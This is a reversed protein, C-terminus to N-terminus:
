HEAVLEVCAGLTVMGIGLWAALVLAQRGSARPLRTRGLMRDGVIVAALSAGLLAAAILVDLNADSARGVVTALTVIAAWLAIAVLGVVLFRGFPGNVGAIPMGRSRREASRCAGVTVGLVLLAAVWQSLPASGGSLWSTTFTGMVVFAWLLAGSALLAPGLVPHQPPAAVDVDVTATAPGAPAVPPPAAPPPVPPPPPPPRSKSAALLEGLTSWDSAGPPRVRLTEDIQDAAFSDRLEELTVDYIVGERTQAQWGASAPARSPPAASPTDDARTPDAAAAATAGEARTDNTDDSM